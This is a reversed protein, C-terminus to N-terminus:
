TDKSEILKTVEEEVEKHTLIGDKSLLNIIAKIKYNILRVSNKQKVIEEQIDM